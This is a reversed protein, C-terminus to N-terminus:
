FSYVMSRSALEIYWDVRKYVCIISFVQPFLDLPSSNPGGSAPPVPAAGSGAVAVEATEPIGQLIFYVDIIENKLGKPFLTLSLGYLTCIIWQETLTTILLM